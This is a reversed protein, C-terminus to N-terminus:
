YDSRLQEAFTKWREENVHNRFEWNVLRENAVKIKWIGKLPSFANYRVKMSYATIGSDSWKKYAEDYEMSGSQEISNKAKAEGEPKRSDKNATNCGAM